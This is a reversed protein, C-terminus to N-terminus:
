SRKAHSSRAKKQKKNLKSRAGQMSKKPKPKPHEAM